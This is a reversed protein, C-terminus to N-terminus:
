RGTLWENTPIKSTNQCVTKFLTPIQFNLSPM